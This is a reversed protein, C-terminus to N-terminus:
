HGLLLLLQLVHLAEMRDEREIEFSDVEITSVNKREAIHSHSSIHHLFAWFM